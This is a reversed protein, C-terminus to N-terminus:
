GELIDVRLSTGANGIAEYAAGPTLRFLQPEGAKITSFSAFSGGASLGIQVTSATATSLNRLFALGVATLNATSISTANTTLSYITSKMGVANMTATVNSVTVQNSLYGKTVNLSIGYTADAM